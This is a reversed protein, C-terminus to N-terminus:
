IKIASFDSVNLINKSYASLHLLAFATVPM